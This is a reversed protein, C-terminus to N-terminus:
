CEIISDRIKGKRMDCKLLIFVFPTNYFLSSIEQTTCNYLSLGLNLPLRSATRTIITCCENIFDAKKM